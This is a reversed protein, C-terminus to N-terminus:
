VVGRYFPHKPDLPFGDAGIRDSFGKLEVVHKEGDHCAKCVSQIKGYWFLIKDGRHPQVHDVVTAPTVKGRKDCIECWPSSRLQHARLKRWKRDSYWDAWVENHRQTPMESLRM